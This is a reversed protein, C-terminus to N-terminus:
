EDAADSTYLLCIWKRGYSDVNVPPLGKVTVEEIGNDNTRIIYTDSGTLSKLVQTGFAAIWGDPTRYLLPIRRVLNDVDVPASAIGELSSRSLDDINKVTGQSLYGGVDDGLIVTGTTKPYIGNDNEFLAIVSPAYALASKLYVDGGFRDAHPFALVWGVGIAGNRLLELHIKALDERPLPYGGAKDVDAETINLIAFNGSAEPTEVLSDFLKLKLIETPTSQFILPLSLIALLLLGQSYKILNNM